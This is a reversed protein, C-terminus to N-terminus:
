LVYPVSQGCSCAQSARLQVVDGGAEPEDRQIAREPVEARDGVQQDSSLLQAGRAAVAAMSSNQAWYLMM